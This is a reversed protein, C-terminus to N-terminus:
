SLSTGLVPFRRPSLVGRDALWADLRGNALAVRPSFNQSPDRNTALRANDCRYRRINFRASAAATEVASVDGRTKHTFDRVVLAATAVASFPRIRRHVLRRQLRHLHTRDQSIFM